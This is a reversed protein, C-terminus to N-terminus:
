YRYDYSSMLNLVPERLICYTKKKRSVKHQILPVRPGNKLTETTFKSASHMVSKSMLNISRSSSTSTHSERKRSCPATNKLMSDRPAASLKCLSENCLCRESVCMYMCVCECVCVCVWRAPFTHILTRSIWLRSLLPMSKKACLSKSPFLVQYGM